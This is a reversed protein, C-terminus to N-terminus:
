KEGQLNNHSAIVQWRNGQRKWTMTYRRISQNGASTDNKTITFLYYQVIAIDGHIVIHQPRLAHNLFKTNKSWFGVWDKLWGYDVPYPSEHGFGVFDPHIYEVFKEPKGEVLCQWHDLLTQWVEKQVPTWEKSLSIYTEM